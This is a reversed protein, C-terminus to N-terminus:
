RVEGAVDRGVLHIVPRETAQGDHVVPTVAFHLLGHIPHARLLIDGVTDGEVHQAIAVLLPAGVRECSKM